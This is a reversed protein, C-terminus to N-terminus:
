APRKPTEAQPGSAAAAPADAPMEPSLADIVPRDRGYIDPWTKLKGDPGPAVTFYAVHAPIQEPLPARSTTGKAIAAQIASSDWGLLASALVDIKETRMCGHSFARVPKAFLAKAPTDHFFIAWPNPMDVKLRGLSNGPGPGQVVQLTAGSGTWSYGRARATAPSRRILAGVSEAIISDPVNWPPNFVIGTAAASFQPTPTAPKGVIIRHTLLVEGSDWLELTFAPVNAMLHRVGLNRPMWRWRELNARLRARAAPDRTTVLAAKLRAYHPHTPLLAELERRVTGAALATDLRAQLYALDARPPPSKWGLRASEPTRGAAYDHALALWSRSAAAAVAAPDGGALAGELADAGYDTPVLGEAASARVAQLLERAAPDSWGEALVPQAVLLVLFLLARRM